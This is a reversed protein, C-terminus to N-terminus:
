VAELDDDSQPGTWPRTIDFQSRPLDDYYKRLLLQRMRESRTSQPPDTIATVQQYEEKTFSVDPVQVRTSEHKYITPNFPAVSHPRLSTTRFLTDVVLHHLARTLTAYWTLTRDEWRRLEKLMLADFTNGKQFHPLMESEIYLRQTPEIHGSNVQDIYENLVDDRRTCGNVAYWRLIQLPEEVPRFTTTASANLTNTLGRMRQIEFVVTQQPDSGPLVFAQECFYEPNQPAITAIVAPLSDIPMAWSFSNNYRHSEFSQVM